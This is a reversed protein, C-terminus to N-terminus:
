SNLYKKMIESHNPNTHNPLFVNLFRNNPYWGNSNMYNEFPQKIKGIKIAEVVEVNMGRGYKVRVM